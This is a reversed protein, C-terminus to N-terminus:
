DVLFYNMLIPHVTEEPTAQENRGTILSVSTLEGSDVIETAHDYYDEWEWNTDNTGQEEDYKMNEDTMQNIIGLADYVLANSRADYGIIHDDYGLFIIPNDSMEMVQELLDQVRQTKPIIDVLKTVLKEKGGKTSEFVLTGYRAVKTIKIAGEIKKKEM